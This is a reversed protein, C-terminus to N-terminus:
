PSLVTEYHASRADFDALLARAPAPVVATEHDEGAFAVVDRASAVVSAVNADDSDRNEDPAREDGNGEGDGEDDDREDSDDEEGEDGARGEGDEDAIGERTKETANETKTANEDESSGFLSGLGDAMKGLIGKEEEKPPPPPREFQPRTVEEGVFDGALADDEGAGARIGAPVVREAREVFPM